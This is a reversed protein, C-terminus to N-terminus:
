EFEEKLNVRGKLASTVHVDGLPFTATAEGSLFHGSRRVSLSSKVHPRIAAQRISSIIPSGAPCILSGNKARKTGCHWGGEECEGVGELNEM